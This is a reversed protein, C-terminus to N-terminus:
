SLSHRLRKSSDPEPIFYIGDKAVDFNRWFIPGLCRLRRAERVPFKGFALTTM